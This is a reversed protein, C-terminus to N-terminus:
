FGFLHGIDIGTSTSSISTRLRGGASRERRRSLSSALRSGSGSHSSAHALSTSRRSASITAPLAAQSGPSSTTARRCACNFHAIKKRGLCRFFKSLCDSKIGLTGAGRHCHRKQGLERPCRSDNRRIRMEARARRTLTPEKWQVAKGVRHDVSGFIFSYSDASDRMMSAAPSSACEFTARRATMADIVAIALSRHPADCHSEPGVIRSERCVRASPPM